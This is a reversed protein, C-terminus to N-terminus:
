GLYARIPALDYGAAAAKAAIEEASDGAAARALAWLLTSRTGSRCFALLPGKAAEIAQAMAEVQAQSFGGGVPIHRYDLGAERAAQEIMAATPQGYEEGDPRNNVIMTVGEAAAAAIDDPWLQGAVLTREDIRKFM